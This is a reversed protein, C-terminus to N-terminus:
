LVGLKPAPRDPNASTKPHTEMKPRFRSKPKPLMLWQQLSAQQLHDLRAYNKLCQSM